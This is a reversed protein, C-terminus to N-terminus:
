SSREESLESLGGHVKQLLKLLDARERESLPALLQAERKLAVERVREFLAIGNATMCYPKTRGAFRGEVPAVRGHEELSRMARSVSAPDLGVLNVIDLSSSAGTAALAALVRWEVVGFGFRRLYTRSSTSTWRNSIANLYFPVYASLDFPQHGPIPQHSSSM